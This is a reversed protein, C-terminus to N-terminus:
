GKRSEEQAQELWRTQFQDYSMSFQSLIAEPLPQKKKLRILLQQVEHLGYRAIIYGVASDSELYAINAADSSLGGWPGELARLPISPVQHLALRELDSWTDGSLRMALGENLWTPLAVGDIGQLDHLLAHVFEHRLVRKLWGRDTLAGQTPVQIRGLVADFLGDAWAPTETMGHFTGHSHLVVVIPKSPFHGFKQGIERYAEELIDLVVTWTDHDSEGDYKVTFHTSNQSRLQGETQETRRVKATVTRLYAQAGPDNPSREIAHDLHIAAESLRDQEQLLDALAMHPFPEEPVLSILRELFGTTMAPDRQEWYAHALNMMIVSNKDDLSAAKKFSTIAVKTGERKEQEIGLNNWLVALYPRVAAASQLDSPLDVLRSAAEKLHGKEMEDRIAVLTDQYRSKPVATSDILRSQQLHPSRTGERIPQPVVPKSFTSEHAEPPQPPSYPSKFWAGYVVLLGLIGAAAYLIHSINRRYM